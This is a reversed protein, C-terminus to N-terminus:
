RVSGGGPWSTLPRRGAKGEGAATSSCGALQAGVILALALFGLPRARVVMARM